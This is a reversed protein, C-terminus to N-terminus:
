YLVISANTRIWGDTGRPRFAIFTYVGKVTQPGVFFRTNGAPGLSLPFITIPGGDIRYQIEVESPAGPISMTYFGTGVQIQSPVIELALETSELYQFEGESPNARFRDPDARFAETVDLFRGDRYQMVILRDSALIDPAISHGLSSYRAEVSDDYALKVLTGGGHFWWLGPLEDNLFLITSGPKIDSQYQRMSLLTSEAIRASIGLLGNRPIESHVNTHAAFANICLPLGVVMPALAPRFYWVYSYLRALAQGVILAFGVSPLFLYYAQLSGGIGLMPTISALFWFLGIITYKREPSWFSFVAYAVMALGFIILFVVTGPSLNRWPDSWGGALNISWALGDLLHSVMGGHIALDYRVGPGVGLYLVIYSFYTALVVWFPILPKLLPPWERLGPWNKLPRLMVAILALNAPLTVAAEKSMLALVFSVLSALYWRFPSNGAAWRMYFVLSLLYFSTYFLEPAFALDYTVYLNNSHLSFFTTGLLAVLTDSTLRRLFIYVICTTLFFLIFVAVHYAYPELGYFPYLLAPITRNSLPRYWNASDLSYLGQIFESVSRFRYYLWWLADGGFFERASFVWSELVGLLALFVITIRNRVLFIVASEGRYFATSM